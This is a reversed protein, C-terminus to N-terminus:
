PGMTQQTDMPIFMFKNKLITFFGSSIGDLTMKQKLVEFIIFTNCDEPIKFYWLIKLCKWWGEWRYM